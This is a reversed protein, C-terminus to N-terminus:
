ESGLQHDIRVGDLQTPNLQDATFPHIIVHTENVNNAQVTVQAFEIAQRKLEALVAKQLAAYNLTPVTM